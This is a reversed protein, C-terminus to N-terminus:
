AVPASLAEVLSGADFSGEHLVGNVFFAPTGAIGAARASREDRAVREAHVGELVERRVQEGDLGIAAAHRALDDISLRGRASYLAKYMPWFAGQAAAAEAAQAANDADPHAPLPMHRFAFRLRGDLRERVRTLISQSAVCYPCQFDGYMVLEFAADGAGTVHDQPGLPPDLMAPM